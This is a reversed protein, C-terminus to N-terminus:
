LNHMIVLHLFFSGRSIIYSHMDRSFSKRKAKKCTNKESHKGTAELSRINPPRFGHRVTTAFVILPSTHIFLSYNKNLSKLVTERMHSNATATLAM